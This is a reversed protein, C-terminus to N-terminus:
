AFGSSLELTGVFDYGRDGSARTVGHHRYLGGARTAARHGLIPEFPAGKGEYRKRVEALLGEESSGNTLLRDARGRLRLRQVDRCPFGKQKGGVRVREFFIMPVAGRRATEDSAVHLALQDLLL